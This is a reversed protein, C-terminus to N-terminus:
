SLELVAYQGTLQTGGGGNVRIADIPTTTKIAGSGSNLTQCNASATSIGQHRILTYGTNEPGIIYFMIEDRYDATGSGLNTYYGTTGTSSALNWTTTSAWGYAHGYMYNTGALYSTGNNTSGELFCGGGIYIDYLWIICTKTLSTVELSAAGSLTGSNRLNWAGGAAAQFTPAAGAGNSTLVHTATGVAVTAADGSADWTILEGDTGARLESVPVGATGGIKFGAELNPVGTGGGTLTLDTNDSKTTVADAKLTSM